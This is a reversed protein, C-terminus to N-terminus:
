AVLEYVLRQLYVCKQQSHDLNNGPQVGEGPAEARVKVRSHPTRCSLSRPLQGGGAPSEGPGGEALGAPGETALQFNLAPVVHVKWVAAATLALIPQRLWSAQPLTTDAPAQALSGPLLVLPVSPKPM